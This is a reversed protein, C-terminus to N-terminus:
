PELLPKRTKPSRSRSRHEITQWVCQAHHVPIDMRLKMLIRGTISPSIGHVCVCARMCARVCVRVCVCVCVGFTMRTTERFARSIIFLKWPHPWPPHKQEFYFIENWAKKGCKISNGFNFLQGGGGGLPSPTPATTWHYRAPSKIVPDRTRVWEPALKTMLKVENDGADAQGLKAQAM